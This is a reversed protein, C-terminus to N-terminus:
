STDDETAEVNESPRHDMKGQPEQNGQPEQSSSSVDPTTSQSSKRESAPNTQDNEVVPRETGANPSTALERTLYDLLADAQPDRPISNRSLYSAVQEALSRGASEAFRSPTPDRSLATWINQMLRQRDHDNLGEGESEALIQAVRERLLRQRASDSLESDISHDALYRSRLFARFRDDSMGDPLREGLHRLNNDALWNLDVLLPAASPPEDSWIDGARDITNTSVDASLYKNALTLFDRLSVQHYTAESHDAFERRMSPLPQGDRTFWDEKVDSTVLLLSDTAALTGAHALVEVWLLYDGARLDDSDKDADKYGPPVRDAYRSLAAKIRKERDENSPKSGVRGDLLDDLRARVPDDALALQRTVVHESRIREVEDLFPQAVEEAAEVYRGVVDDIQRRVEDPVALGKLAKKLAEAQPPSVLSALREYYGAQQAVVGLRTQQYELAVQYPIWLRESCTTLVELLTEREATSFRYLSLLVNTDLVILGDTVCTKVQEESLPYHERFLDKV